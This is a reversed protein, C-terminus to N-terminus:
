LGQMVPLGLLGAVASSITPLIVIADLIGLGGLVIKRATYTAARRLNLVDIGVLAAVTSSSFTFLTLADGRVLGSANLLEATIITLAIGTALPVGVGRGRIMTALRNYAVTLFLTTVSWVEANLAGSRWLITLAAISTLIPIVAGGVNLLVKSNASVKFEVEQHIVRGEVNLIVPKIVKGEVRRECLKLDISGLTYAAMMTVGALYYAAWGRMGLATYIRLYLMTLLLAVALLSTLRNV